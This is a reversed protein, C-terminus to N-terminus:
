KKKCCLADRLTIAVAMAQWVHKSIGYLPGPNGKTGVQPVKGGGERPYMDIIAQRINSDSANPSKCIHHCIAPLDESTKRYLRYVETNSLAAESFRGIWYVTEFTDRGVPMGYSAVMEIGIPSLGFDCSILKSILDENPCYGFELVDHGDLWIWASKETGPDIGVVRM